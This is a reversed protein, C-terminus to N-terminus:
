IWVGFCVTSLGATLPGAAASSWADGTSPERLSSCFLRCVCTLLFCLLLPSSFTCSVGKLKPASSKFATVAPTKHDPDLDSRAPGGKSSCSKNFFLDM